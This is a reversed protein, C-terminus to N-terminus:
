IRGIISLFCIFYDVLTSIFAEGNKRLQNSLAVQRADLDLLVNCVHNLNSAYYGVIIVYDYDLSLSNLITTVHEHEFIVEGCNALNDLISKIKMLYDRM